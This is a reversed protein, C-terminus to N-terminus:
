ELNEYYTYGPRKVYNQPEHRKTAGNLEYTKTPLVSSYQFNFSLCQSDDRCKRSCQMVDSVERQSRPSRSLAYDVGDLIM